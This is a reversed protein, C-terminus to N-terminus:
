ILFVDAQKKRRDGVANVLRAAPERCITLLSSEWAKLLLM